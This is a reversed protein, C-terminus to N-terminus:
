KLDVGILLKAERFFEEDSVTLEKLKELIIRRFERRVYALYNTVNSVSIGFESAIQDYTLKDEGEMHYREFIRFYIDKEKAECERKLSQLSLEFFSRIWEKEFYEEVSQGGAIETHRLEGEASEYDLPVIVAEGGRKQRGAAKQENSLYGDLCTRLYTRFKARAPDYNQLIEKELMRTFFGQTLDKADENSKRWQIRIYKYVPKWYASVILDFAHRREAADESRVALIASRRTTPFRGGGQGIGTDESM